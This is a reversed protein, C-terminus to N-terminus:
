KNTENDSEWSCKHNHSYYWLKEKEYQKLNNRKTYGYHEFYKWGFESHPKVNKLPKGKRSLGIKKRHEESLKMGKRGESIRKRIEESRKKGKFAESLKNKHEESKTKGHLKKHETRTLFILEFYPRNYYMGMRKLDERTHAFEGDLTLELRHHCEWLQTKDAIAKDYNEIKELEGERVYHKVTYECLM